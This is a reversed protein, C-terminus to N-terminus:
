GGSSSSSSLSSLIGSQSNMQAMFSELTSFKSYLQNKKDTLKTKLDTIQTTADTIQDYISNLQDGDSSSGLLSILKGQVSTTSGTTTYDNVIDQLRYALGETNKRLTQRNETTGTSTTVNTSDNIVYPTSSQMTFLDQVEQAHNQLMSVLTDTSNNDFVLQGPTTNDDGTDATSERIGLSSLSISTGDSTTVSANVMDRLEQQLQNLTDDNFLVGASAKENWSTIDTDSMSSKQSDTLPQYDADPKTNTYTTIAALLTNYASVFNQVSKVATSTDQTFAINATTASSVTGNITYNVNDLTFSNSNRTMRTAGNDISFVADQGQTVGSVSSGAMTSTTQGSVQTSSFGLAEFLETSIDSGNAINTSSAAGTGLSFNTASGSNGATASMVGTTSSYSMTVGTGAANIEKLATFLSDSGALTVATGNVTVTYNGSSDALTVGQNSLLQSVTLNRNLSNSSGSTSGTLAHLGTTNVSLNGSSDTTSIGSLSFMTNYNVSTGSSNTYTGPSFLADGNSDLSVTVRPGNTSTASSDWGFATNMEHQLAGAVGGYTSVDSATVTLQKTVGDVTLNFANGELASINSANTLDVSGKITNATSSGTISAATANQYVTISRSTGSAGQQATVSVAANDSSGVYTQLASSSTISGSGSLALYTSNFTNLDTVISQYDTQKWQLVQKNQGAKDIQSQIDTTLGTVINDVDLGSALGFIHGNYIDTSSTSSSSSSSSSSSLSSISSM